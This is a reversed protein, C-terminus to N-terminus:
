ADNRFNVLRWWPMKLLTLVLLYAATELLVTTPVALWISHLHDLLFHGLLYAVAGALLMTFFRHFLQYVPMFAAMIKLLYIMVVLESILTALVAGSAGRHAILFSNALINVAAGLITAITYHQSKEYPILYQTIIASSWCILLIVPSEVVILQGVEAFQQGLFVPIVTPALSAMGAVLLVGLCNMFEFSTVMYGRVEDHAKQAAAHAIRPMLVTSLSTVITLALRVISDASSFYAVAKLSSLEGLMTKNVVLYIQTAVQPVFLVLAPWLHQWAHLGRHAQWDLQGKLFPLLSLNGFFTSGAVILTYILVDGSHHVLTFILFLSLLKVAINRITIRKFDELGMFFWSVDFGVALINVAQALLIIEYQRYFILFIAFAAVVALTVWIKLRAIEFFIRSRQVEDDRHQAIKKTGYLSLGLNAALVFYSITANTFSYVGYSQAGLVRTIYPLTVLPVIIALLQYTTNYLYNKFIKM